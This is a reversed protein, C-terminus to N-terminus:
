HLGELCEQYYGEYDFETYFKYEAESYEDLNDKTLQYEGNSMRQLILSNVEAIYHEKNQYLSLDCILDYDNFFSFLKVNDYQLLLESTQREAALQMKITDQYYLSDWYLICHPSYFFYFTIDPNNEVLTVINQDINDYAKELETDYDFYDFNGIDRQRIWDDHDYSEMIHSFGTEESAWSSYSDFSTSEEGKATSILTKILGYYLIEKNYIYQTDNFWEDDYLYEPIDPYAVYDKDRRLGVYDLSMIVTNLESNADAAIQINSSLEKFGAGAYPTKIFTGGFLAEAESPKFNQTMSTGMILGTYDFNRSIGNNIYRENLMQYSIGKMNKHYHFYPDIVIMAIAILLFIGVQVSAFIIFKKKM